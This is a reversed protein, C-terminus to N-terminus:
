KTQTTVGNIIRHYKDGKISLEKWKDKNEELYSDWPRIIKGAGASKGDAEKTKEPTSSVTEM